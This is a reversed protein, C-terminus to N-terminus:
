PQRKIPSERLSEPSIKRDRMERDYPTHTVGYLRTRLAHGSVVIRWYEGERRVIFTDRDLMIWAQVRYRRYDPMYEMLMLQRFRPEGTKGDYVHNLEIRDVTVPTAATVGGRLSGLLLVSVLVINM